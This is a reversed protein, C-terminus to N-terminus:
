PGYVRGAAAVPRRLLVGPWGALGRSLRGRRPITGARADAPPMCVM